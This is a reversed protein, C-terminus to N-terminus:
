HGNGRDRWPKPAAQFQGALAARQLQARGQVAGLGVMEVAPQSIREALASITPYQFMEAASLNVRLAQQIKAQVRLLLLSDGGLDFFNDNVGVQTIGFLSEWIGAIVGETENQAAVHNTRVAPRAHSPTVQEPISTASSNTGHPKLWASIRARLDGTSVIVQGLDTRGLIRRFAELGEAPTLSFETIAAGSSSNEDEAGDRWADWNVSIWPTRGSRNRSLAFADLFHNAGSYAAHGLGGLVTSLSSVLVVFDLQEDRFLSELTSLGYVKAQFHADCQATNADPVFASGRRGTVGAAHFVGNIAGFRQYIAEMAPRIKERDAVDVALILVEGGMEEIRRVKSIRKSIRDEPGHEEIWAAWDQKDPLDSHGMLILRARYSRALFEALALGMKGLGGTILYVGREKLRTQAGATEELRVSEIEPVWRHRGRYALVPETNEALLETVLQEALVKRETSGAEGPIVDINRCTLNPFEQPIVTCPGLAITKAPSLIEEGIVEQMHNSVLDIQISRSIRSKNFAQALFLLSDFGMGIYRQVRDAGADTAEPDPTVSWCHVIRDPLKEKRVLDDILSEYDGALSPNLIYSDEAEAKFMKGARITTVHHPQALREAIDAGLGCEDLFVLWNQSRAPTHVKQADISRKWSPVYFWDAIDPKKRLAPQTTTTAREPRRPEVWYRERQFPYPPLQVRRRHEQAYFGDWNVKVGRMWLQGLAALVCSADPRQERVHRLSSFIEVDQPRASQLRALSTLTTGPGVELLVQDGRKFLEKVGDGFRVTHRLHKAWYQPDTAEEASIWTGTLNSLFPITPRGRRVRSVCETFPQLIPDMQGSHFAHSTHLATACIGSTQVTELFSDVEAMGGSVVCQSPGNVSALFLDAPLIKQLEQEPLPVALMTGRPMSQMLQGRRAVLALADELTFVGALCAAVYEGISHGIMAAPEIGWSIWLSALAYEVAFLAPQTIRTETLLAEADKAKDSAPYLVHRLDIGLASLLIESCRDIESKFVQETRYLEAGMNVYQAGQGPFMFVVSPSEADRHHSIVRKPDRSELACIADERDSCVLMRRHKFIQRGKQLTFAVDALDLDPTAKLHALLRDAAADLAPASKASFPLLQWPRSPTTSAPAPAEELAVHANTGGLGFSSVGARRPLPVNEWKKLTSNVYFPSDAFDIKPNPHSFHLSPPLLKNELALVAKILGAVGAGAGLHGINSKVSGIACFNKEATGMRFAQTLGAIEIPDGIPTATGHCEVYSVTAPDFEAEALATAVAEAQGEVSPATFGVKSAGDNNLGFGKIVAHIHDGDALAEALRKLVVVGLGEGSVTGQAKTDFTRCHGDPSLIGGEQFFVCRRQPFTIWVGGALALDCQYSLLSQAAQCVAVLSTSCATNVSIAPGRLDLKYAVWTALFDKENGLQIVRDGVIDAIDPRSLLHNLYYTSDGCGAFVGIPGDVRAPDYGANELAEWSTELFLRQQPDTVEAQRATMNFFAADFLEPNQLIGRAAVANPDKRLRAVDLGSAALEEDTFTSVSEVGAVLNRWFEEVNAAGPFRGSMGVIAISDSKSENTM